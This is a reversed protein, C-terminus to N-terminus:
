GESKSSKKKRARAPRDSAEKKEAAAVDENAPKAYGQAFAIVPTIIPFMLGCAGWFVGWGLSDNRKYGHYASLGGSLVSIGAIVPNIPPEGTVPNIPVQTQGRAAASTPDTNPTADPQPAAQGAPAIRIFPSVPTFPNM